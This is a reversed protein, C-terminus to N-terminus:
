SHITLNVDILTRGIRTEMTLAHIADGLVLTKTIWAVFSLVAVLLDVLTLPEVRTEVPSAHTLTYCIKKEKIAFKPFLFPLLKRLFIRGDHDLAESVAFLSGRMYDVPVKKSELLKSLM